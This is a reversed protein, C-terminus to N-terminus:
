KVNAVIRLGWQRLLPAKTISKCTGEITNYTRAEILLYLLPCRIFIMVFLLLSLIFLTKDHLAAYVGIGIIVSVATAAALGLWKRLLCHPWESLRLM